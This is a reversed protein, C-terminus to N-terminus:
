LKELRELDDALAVIENDVIRDVAAKEAKTLDREESEALKLYAKAEIKKSKIEAKVEDIKQKFSMTKIGEIIQKLSPM